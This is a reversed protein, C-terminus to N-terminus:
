ASNNCIPVIILKRYKPIYASNNWYASNSNEPIRCTPVIIQYAHNNLDSSYATLNQHGLINLKKCSLYQVIMKIGNIYFWDFYGCINSGFKSINTLMLSFYSINQKKDRYFTINQHHWTINLSLNKGKLFPLIAMFGM